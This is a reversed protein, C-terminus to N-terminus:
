CSHEDKDEAEQTTREMAGSTMPERLYSCCANKIIHKFFNAFVCYDSYNQDRNGYMYNWFNRIMFLEYNIIEYLIIESVVHM